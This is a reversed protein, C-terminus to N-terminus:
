GGQEKWRSARPGCGKLIIAMPIHSQERARPCGMKGCCRGDATARALASQCCALLALVSSKSWGSEHARTPEFQYRKGYFFGKFNVGDVPTFKEGYGHLRGNSTLAVESGLKYCDDGNM